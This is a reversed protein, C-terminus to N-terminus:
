IDSLSDWTAVYFKAIEPTFRVSSKPYITSTIKPPTFRVSLKPPLNYKGIQPTFQRHNVGWGRFQWTRNVGFRRYSKGGGDLRGIKLLIEFACLMVGQKVFTKEAFSWFTQILVHCLTYILVHHLLICQYQCHSTDRNEPTQEM